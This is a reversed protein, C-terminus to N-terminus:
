RYLGPHLQKLGLTYEVLDNVGIWEIIRINYNFYEKMFTLPPTEEEKDTDSLQIGFAFNFNSKTLNVFPDKDLIKSTFIFEVNKRSFFSSCCYSAYIVTIFVFLITCCGGILSKYEIDEGMRFTIFTGFCDSAKIARKFCKQCKEM